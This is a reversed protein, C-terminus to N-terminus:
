VEKNKNLKKNFLILSIIGCIFIFRFLWTYPMQYNIIVKKADENIKIATMLYNGEQIEANNGDVKASMGELYPIPIVAYGSNHKALTIEINNRNFKIKHKNNQNTAKNLSKYNEGYIGKIEYDYMGTNLKLQILDSSKIKLTINKNFRRYDDDLPKRYQYIENIWVLHYKNPSKLEIDLNIYLDKYKKAIKKDLHYIIGGNEQTVNLQNNQYTAGVIENKTYNLLNKSPKVSKGKNKLVVGELMAHERDIPLNITNEKFINNTVRVFPIEKTNEFIFYQKDKDTIVDRQKFGYPITSSNSERIITNVNFLSYLNAREGLRYYISNSDTDMTINLDKDYFQYIDKNFISSYLKVGNYHQYMPTNHTSATQWEIRDNKGQRNKIEKIMNQQIDTNYKNSTIFEKNHEQKPHLTDMQEVVYDHIFVNNMTIITFALIYEIYKINYKSILYLLILIIPIFILWYLFKGTSYISAPFIIFIPIISIIFSKTDIEKLRNLYEAILVAVLFSLLYVWRRQDVSFGNFFSDFYPSLSGIMFLITFTAFLKFYYHKYLKFTMLALIVIFPVVIYYGNYFLNYHIVVDIIPKLTFEPISRDNELFSIVGKSFGLIGLMLGIMTSISVVVIKQIRNLIDTDKVYIIRYIFYVLVFIFEYYGFYFNSQLTLAIALIYVIIRKEKLLIEIGLITLPLYIMVDSFFSWTFTFFFYVTSFAYLYAGVFSYSKKINFYRLLKYTILIIISLKIISIFIQNGAWFSIDSTNFDFFLDGIWVIIYNLYTIPSTSYYYALNKMYDGGIGFGIDYSMSFSTFKEYLYLQFPLMQALGDGKGTFLLGENFYRFIIFTHAIISLILSIGLLKWYKINMFHTTIKNKLNM